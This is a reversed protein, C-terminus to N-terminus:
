SKSWQNSDPIHSLIRIDPEALYVTPQSIVCGKFLKTTLVNKKAPIMGLFAVKTLDKLSNIVAIIKWPFHDRLLNNVSRKLSESEALRKCTIRKVFFYESNKMLHSIFKSDSQVFYQSVTGLFVSVVSVLLWNRELCFTWWFEIHWPGQISTKSLKKCFSIPIGFAM